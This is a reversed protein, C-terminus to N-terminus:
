IGHNVVPIIRQFFAYGKRADSGFLNLGPLDGVGDFAWPANGTVEKETRMILSLKLAQIRRKEVTTPDSIWRYSTLTKQSVRLSSVTTAAGSIATQMRGMVAVRAMPIDRTAEIDVVVSRGVATGVWVATTDVLTSGDWFGVLIRTAGRSPEAFSDNPTLFFEFRYTSGRVIERAGITAAGMLAANSWGGFTTRSGARVVSLWPSFWLSTSDWLTSDVGLLAYEMQFAVVSHCVPVEQASAIGSFLSAETRLMVSDTSRLRYRVVQLNAPACSVNGNGDPLYQAFTIEDGPNTWDSRNVHLFSSSDGTAPDAFALPCNVTSLIRSSYMNAVKLGTNLLDHEIMRVTERAESQLEISRSVRMFNGRSGQLLMYAFGIVMSSLVMAVILEILTYGRAEVRSRSM